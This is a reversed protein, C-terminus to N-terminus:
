ATFLNAGLAVREGTLTVLLAVGFVVTALRFARAERGAGSAGRGAGSAGRGAAPPRRATLRELWSAARAGGDHALNGAASTWEVMREPSLLLLWAEQRLHRDCVTALYRGVDFGPAFRTILG